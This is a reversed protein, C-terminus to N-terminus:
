SDSLPEVQEFTYLAIETPSQCFLLFAIDKCKVLFTM